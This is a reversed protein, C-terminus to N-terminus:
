QFLVGLLIARYVSFVGLERKASIIIICTVEFIKTELSSSLHWNLVSNASTSLSFATILLMARAFGWYFGFKLTEYFSFFTGFKISQKSLSYVGFLCWNQLFFFVSLM